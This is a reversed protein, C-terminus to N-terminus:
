EKLRTDASSGSTTLHITSDSPALRKLAAQGEDKQETQASQLWHKWAAILARRQSWNLPAAQEEFNRLVQAGSSSVEASLAFLADDRREPLFLCELLRAQAQKSDTPRLHRVAQKGAPTEATSLEVLIPSLNSRLPALLGGPALQRLVESSDPSSTLLADKAKDLLPAKLYKLIAQDRQPAANQEYWGTLLLDLFSTIRLQDPQPAARRYLESWNSSPDEPPTTEGRALISAGKRLRPQSSLLAGALVADSAETRPLQCLLFLGWEALKENPQEALSLAGRRLEERVDDKSASRAELGLLSATAALRLQPLQRSDQLWELLTEQLDRRERPTLEVGFALVLAAHGTSESRRKKLLAMLEPKASSSGRLAFLAAAALTPANTESALSLALLREIVEKREPTRVASLAAIRRKRDHNGEAFAVLAMQASSAPDHALLKLALSQELESGSSLASLLVLSSRASLQELEERAQAREPTAGHRLKLELPYIQATLVEFFLSRFLSSEPYAVSLRRFQAELDFLRGLAVGLSLLQAGARKIANEDKSRRVLLSLQDFADEGQGLQALVEALQIRVGDLGEDLALAQNFADVAEEFRGQELYLEGLLALATPDQHSQTLSKEAYSLSLKLDGRKKAAESMASYYRRSQKPDAKLLKHWTAIAEDFQGVRLQLPALQTLAEVDGPYSRILRQLTLAADKLDGSSEQAAALLRLTRKDKSNRKLKRKLGEIQLPLVGNRKYLRVLHRRALAHDSEPAKLSLLREYLEVATRLWKRQKSAGAHAAARELGLALAKVTKTSDPDIEYSEYLLTVGDDFAEHNILVEGWILKARAPDKEVQEIRKWTARAQEEDGKRFYRSGLDILVRATVHHVGSLYHLAQEQRNLAQLHEAFDALQLVAEPDRKVRGYIRDWESLVDDRRGQALLMRMLRLSLPLDNPAARSVGQTAAVAGELDGTLELMKAIRLKLDVDRPSLRSARKYADLAEDTRGEQEYLRGLLELSAGHHAQTKLEQLYKGLTGRARHVEALQRQAELQKGPTHKLLTAARKLHLSAQDLRGVALEAQGLDLLAPGLARPDTQQLKVVRTLEEIAEESWGRNLLERGLEGQLYTNGRSKETLKKHYRRAGEFDKLDLSLSRLTRLLFTREGEQTGELAKEFSRRAEEHRGQESLIHGKRLHAAGQQPALAIAREIQESAQELRGDEKLYYSLALLAGYRQTSDASEAQKTLAQLLHELSGDRKRVLEGLRVLPVEEGPQEIILKGYRTILRNRRTEESSDQRPAASSAPKPQRHPSGPGKSRTSPQAKTRGRGRANFQGWADQSPTVLCATLILPAFSRLARNTLKHRGM